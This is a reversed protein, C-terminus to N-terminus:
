PVVPGNLQALEVGQTRDGLVPPSNTALEILLGSLSAFLICLLLLRLRDISPTGLRNM